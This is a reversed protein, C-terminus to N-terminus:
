DWLRSPMLLSFASLTGGQIRVPATVVAAATNRIHVCSLDFPIKELGPLTNATQAWNQKWTEELGLASGNAVGLQNKYEERKRGMRPSQWRPVRVKALYQKGLSEMFGCGGVDNAEQKGLENCEVKSATGGAEGALQIVSCVKRPQKHCGALQQGTRCPVLPSKKPCCGTKTFNSQLSVATFSTQEASSKPLSTEIWLLAYIFYVDSMECM